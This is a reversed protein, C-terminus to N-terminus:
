RAGRVLASSLIPVNRDNRLMIQDCFTQADLVSHIHHGIFLDRIRGHVLIMSVLTDIRKYRLLEDKEIM